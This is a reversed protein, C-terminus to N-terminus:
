EEQSCIKRFPCYNCEWDELYDKEPLKEIKIKEYVAKLKEVIRLAMDVDLTKEHEVMDFDEKNVYLISFKKVNLLYAYANAQVVHYISAGKIKYHFGRAGSTKIDVVKLGGEDVLLDYHGVLEIEDFKREVSKEYSVLYERPLITQIYDHFINGIAFIGKTKKDLPIAKEPCTKKYYIRRSCYACSSIRFVNFGTTYSGGSKKHNNQIKESLM